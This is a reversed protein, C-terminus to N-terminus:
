FKKHMWGSSSGDDRFKNPDIMPYYERNTKSLESVLLSLADALDDHSERGLGTMQTILDECGTEPFLVVGEKVFPSILAQRSRKDGQSNVGIAPYGALELMQPLARQYANDEIFMQAKRGNDLTSSL